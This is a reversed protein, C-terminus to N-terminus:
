RPVAVAESERKLGAAEVKMNAVVRRSIVPRLLSAVFGRVEVSLTVRTGDDVPEIVHDAITHAGRVRTEWTFGRGPTAETVTWTSETTGKPHVLAETGKRLPGDTLKQVSVMSATWTPWRDIDAMVEWVREPTTEITVTHDWRPM